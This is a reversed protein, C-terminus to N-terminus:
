PLQVLTMTQVVSTEVNNTGIVMTMHTRNEGAATRVMGAPTVTLRETGSITGQLENGMMNLVTTGSVVADLLFDTGSTGSVTWTSIASNQSHVATGVSDATVTTDAKNTDAWTTGVALASRHGPFLMALAPIIQMTTMNVSGAGMEELPLGESMKGTKILFRFATGPKVKTMSDPLMAMMEGGDFKGSDVVVHALRGGTTDSMTLTLFAVVSTTIEQTGQGMSSLDMVIANKSELRYKIPPDGPGRVPGPLLLALLLSPLLM